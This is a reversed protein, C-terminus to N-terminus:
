GQRDGSQLTLLRDCGDNTSVTLTVLSVEVEAAQPSGLTLQALDLQGQTAITLARGAFPREQAARRASTSGFSFKLDGSLNGSLQRDLLRHPVTGRLM